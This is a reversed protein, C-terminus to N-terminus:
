WGKIRRELLPIRAKHRDAAPGFLEILYEIWMLDFRHADRVATEFTGMAQTGEFVVKRTEFRDLLRRDILEQIFAESHGEIGGGMATRFGADKAQKCIDLVADSVFSSGIEKRSDAVSIKADDVRFYKSGTFDVRGITISDLGFEKGVALIDRLNDYAQITEVNVATLLETRKKAPVHQEIAALFKFLAYASEVMPAVIESVGLDLAQLIGWVDEPGGIKLVLDLDAQGVIECLKELETFSAGESEFEAKVGVVGHKERMSGLHAVIKKETTNM